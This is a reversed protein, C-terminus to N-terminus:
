RPNDWGVLLYYYLKTIQFMVAKLGFHFNFQRESVTTLASNIEPNTETKLLNGLTIAVGDYNMKPPVRGSRLQQILKILQHRYSCSWISRCTDPQM